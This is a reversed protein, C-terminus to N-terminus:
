DGLRFTVVARTESQQLVHVVGDAGKYAGSGGTIPLIFREPFEETPQILAQAAIQGKKFWFTVECQFQGEEASTVTCIGGDHGVKEGSKLLNDHFVFEDGLSFGEEGLDVFAQETTIAVVRFTRRDGKDDAAAPVLAGIALAVVATVAGVVGIRRV